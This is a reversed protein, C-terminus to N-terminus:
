GSTAQAVYAAVNKIDDESLQGKFSPMAGKGNTVRDVVLDYSPKADDLNPGVQGSAGADALTHCSACGASAFVQKGAAPDGEAAAGGTQGGGTEAGGTEGGGTSPTTETGGTEVAAAEAGNEEGGVAEVTALMGAVLAVTIAFFAGMRRGPFGPSRKPVVLAVTLAYVVLVACVIAIIIEHTSV